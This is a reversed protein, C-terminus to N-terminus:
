LVSAPLLMTMGDVLEEMVKLVIKFIFDQSLNHYFFWNTDACIACLYFTFNQFLNGIFVCLQCIANPSVFPKLCTFM